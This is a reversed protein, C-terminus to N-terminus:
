PFRETETVIAGCNNCEYEAISTNGIWDVRILSKNSHFCPLRWRWFKWTM